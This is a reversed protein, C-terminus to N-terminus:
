SQSKPSFLDWFFSLVGEEGKEEVGEEEQEGGGMSENAANSEMRNQSPAPHASLCRFFVVNTCVCVTEAPPRTLPSCSSNDGAM